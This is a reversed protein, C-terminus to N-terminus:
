FKHKDVMAKLEEIDNESLENKNRDTFVITQAFTIRDVRLIFTVNKAIEYDTFVGMLKKFAGKEGRFEIEKM